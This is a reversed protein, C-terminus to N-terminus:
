KLKSIWYKPDWKKYQKHIELKSLEEKLNGIYRRTLYHRFARERRKEIEKAGKFRSYPSYDVEKKTDFNFEILEQLTMGSEEEIIKRSRESIINSM